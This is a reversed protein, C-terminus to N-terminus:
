PKFTALTSFPWLPFGNIFPFNADLYKIKIETGKLQSATKNLLINVEPVVYNRNLINTIFSAPKINQSLKVRERGFKPAISPILLFTTAIYIILFLMVAKAKSNKLVKINKSIIISIFYIIGGIQTFVTLLLFLILHIVLKQLKIFSVM